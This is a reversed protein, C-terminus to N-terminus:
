HAFFIEMPSDLNLYAVITQIESLTFESIGKCKRYYASRSIGLASCVDSVNKNAKKMHYELLEKNM